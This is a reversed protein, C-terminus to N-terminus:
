EKRRAIISAEIWNDKIWTFFLWCVYGIGLLLLGLLFLLMYGICIVTLWKIDLLSGFSAGICCILFLGAAAGFFNDPDRVIEWIEDRKLRLFIPLIKTFNKM